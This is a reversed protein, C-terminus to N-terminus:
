WDSVLCDGDDYIMIGTKNLGSCSSQIVIKNDSWSLEKQCPNMLPSFTKSVVACFLIKQCTNATCLKCGSTAGALTFKRPRTQRHM